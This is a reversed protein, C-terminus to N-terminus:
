RGEKESDSEGALSVVVVEREGIVRKVKEEDGWWCQHGWVVDGNDLIIKPNSVGIDHLFGDPPIEEGAYTGYGLFKVINEDASLVAGVRMGMKKM